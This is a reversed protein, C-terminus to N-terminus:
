AHCAINNHNLHQAKQHATGGIKIIPEDISNEEGIRICASSLLFIYNAM